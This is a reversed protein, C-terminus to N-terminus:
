IFARVSRCYSAVTVDKKNEDEQLDEIWWQYLDKVMDSFLGTSMDWCDSITLFSKIHLQYTALTDSSLNEARKEQLFYDYVRRITENEIAMTQRRRRERM